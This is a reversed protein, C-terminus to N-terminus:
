VEIRGIRRIVFHGMLIGILAGIPICLIPGPEFLRSMYDPNLIFLMGGIFFPLVSLLYGTYRQQTTLVRVEGFLRVRERITNTVAGLMTALNGGVQYQIEIATVVLDLDDNEMRAALNRLAKPLAVGLATERLVRKFEESAPPKMERVVVEIAQLLSFGARVAGNILVLVDILQKEFGVQRKSIKRRLIIGPMIYAIMSLGLGPLASGTMLWGLAGAGLTISLRILVFESVTMSWNAQMLQLALKESNLGSLIANLRIRLRSLLSRRRDGQVVPRPVAAYTQVRQELSGSGALFRVLAFLALGAGFLVAVAGIILITNGALV